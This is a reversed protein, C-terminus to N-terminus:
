WGGPMLGRGLYDGKKLHGEKDTIIEMVRFYAKELILIVTESKRQNNNVHYLRRQGNIKLM